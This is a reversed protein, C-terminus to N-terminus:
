VVVHQPKLHRGPYGRASNGARSYSVALSAMLPAVPYYTSKTLGTLWVAQYKRALRAVLIPSIAIAVDFEVLRVIKRLESVPRM